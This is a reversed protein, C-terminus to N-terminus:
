RRQRALLVGVLQWWIVSAVFTIPLAILGYFILGLPWLMFAIGVSYLVAFVPGNGADGMGTLALGFGVFLDGVATAFLAMALTTRVMSGRRRRPGFWRGVLTGTIATAPGLVVMSEFPRPTDSVVVYASVIAVISAAVLLGAFTGERRGPPAGVSTRSARSIVSSMVLM